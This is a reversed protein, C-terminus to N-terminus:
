ITQCAYDCSQQQLPSRIENFIHQKMNRVTKNSINLDLRKYPYFQANRFGLLIYCACVMYIIYSEQSMHVYWRIGDPVIEHWHWCSSTWSHTHNFEGIDKLTVESASPCDHSQGLALSTVWLFIPLILWWWILVFSLLVCVMHMIWPIYQPCLIQM